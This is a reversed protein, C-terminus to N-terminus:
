DSVSGQFSQSSDSPKQQLKEYHKQLNDYHRQSGCHRDRATSENLYFMSCLNCFYGSKPVVFEQGLPNDPKFPPLKVHISVSPSQSRSRKAEPGVLEKRRKRVAKFDPKSREEEEEEDDREEVCEELSQDEPTEETLDQGPSSAAEIHPVIAAEGGGEEEEETQQLDCSLEADRDLSSVDLPAPPPVDSAAEEAEEAEDDEDDEATVSRGRTSKRAPTQRARKKAPARTKTKIAEEKEEEEGEGVEDVTVFNASEELVPDDDHKRKAPISADEEEEQKEEDDDNVAEDLTVLTEPNLFDESQDEQSLPRTEPTNLEVEEVFEDLTVLAQLEGEGVEDAGVEDLTVLEEEEEEEKTRRARGGGGRSSNSHSRREREERRREKSRREEREKSRREESRREEREKSRREEREKSRREEREKSIQREKAAVHRRRLEEEEAHDDPYDEEEDSVEDLGTIDKEPPDEENTKEFTAADSQSETTPNEEVKESTEELSDVIQYMPEEEEEEEEEDKPAISAREETQKENNKCTEDMTEDEVSDLIQYTTTTEEAAAEKEAKKMAATEKKTMKKPRGRKGKPKTTPPEDKAVEDKVEALTADEGVAMDSKKPPTSTNRRRGPTDRKASRGKTGRTSRTVTLEDSADEVSDIIEYTAEESVETEKKGRASRRRGSQETGAAVDQVPKDEVSDIIEYVVDEATADKDKESAESRSARTSPVSKTSAKDDKRAEGRGNRRGTNDTPQDEVSDIVRYTAEEEEVSEMEEKPMQDGPTELDETATQDGISDLIEFTELGADGSELEKDPLTHVEKSKMEEGMQVSAEESGTNVNNAEQDKISKDSKDDECLKEVTSSEQEGTATQDETVEMEQARAKGEDGFTDLVQFSQEKEGEPDTPKAESGGDQEGGDMQEDTEDLVQYKEGEKSKKDEEVEASSELGQERLPPRMESSTEMETESEVTKAPVDEASVKHDSTAVASQNDKVVERESHTEKSAEVTAASSRSGSSATESAKSPSKTKRRQTKQGPSSPSTKSSSASSKTPSKTPESSSKKSKKPSESHYSSPGRTSRSSSSSSIASRKGDKSYRSSSHRDASSHRERKARSSTRSSSSSGHTRHSSSPTEDDRVEDVTVFEDMDLNDEDFGDYDSAPIDSTLYDERRPAKGDSEHGSTGRSKSHSKKEESQSRRARSLRHNRVAATLVQFVDTNIPPLDASRKTETESSAPSLAAAEAKVGDEKSESLVVSDTNIDSGPKESDETMQEESSGELVQLAAQSGNSFLEPLSSHSKGKADRSRTLRRVNKRAENSFQLHQKLPDLSEISQVQDWHQTVPPIAQLEEFVKTVGSSDAMEIYMRNALTLFNVYPAASVVLELVATIVVRQCDLFQVRLLREQLFEPEPVRGDSLKMMTTYMMEESSAPLIPELVFHVNITHCGFMVPKSIHSRAFKCCMTWDAFLVFARKQLPLILVNYYLSDLDQEPFYSLFLRAMDEYKYFGDPLGTLMITPFMSGSGSAKEIDDQGRVTLYDPIVFTPTTTPFMFPHSKLTLFFGGPEEQPTNGRHPLMKPFSKKLRHIEHCPEGNQSYWAGLRDVDAKLDFEIFVKELLPLFNRVSHIGVEKLTERLKQSDTRSINNILVIKEGDRGASEGILKMLWNYFGLPRMVFPPEIANCTLDCGHLKLAKKQSAEVLKPVHKCSPLCIFALRSQPFAYILRESSGVTYPILQQVIDNLTYSCERYDPLNSILVHPVNKKLFLPEFVLDPLLTRIRSPCLYQDVLEGCTLSEDQCVESANEARSGRQKKAKTGPGKQITKTEVEVEPLHAEVPAETSSGATEQQADSAETNTESAEATSEPETVTSQEVEPSAKLSSEMPQTEEAPESESCKDASNEPVAETTTEEQSCSEVDMPEEVKVGVVEVEMPKADGADKAKDHEEQPEILIVDEDDEVVIPTDKPVAEQVTTESPKEVDPQKEPATSPKKKVVTKKVAGKAPVKGTKSIQKTSVNKAKSVLVKAVLVKAVLVKAKTAGTLGKAASKQNTPKGTADGPPKKLYKQLPKTNATTQPTSSESTAPKKQHPTRQEKESGIEIWNGKVVFDKLIRLKPADTAKEFRVVAESTSRFMVISETKGFHEVALKIDTYSLSRPVCKLRVVNGPLVEADKSSKKTRPKGATASTSSSSSANSSKLKALEALLAPALSKVVAELDSPNALSQAATAGLLKKALNEASSARKQRNRRPPSRREDNRRLPSRRERSNSPSSWREHSSRPSLRRDDRRWPSSRQDDRRPSWKRESSRSRSRYRSSNYRPSFSRSRSRRNHRSSHPSRSSSRRKERKGESGHRRPSPSHSYSRSGRRTNQRQQYSQSSTKPSPKTDKGAASSKFGIEGDWLPYQTRLLRCNELHLPTNQHSIWDKMRTCEKNCLCCTHPFIRPSAAAYDHMMAVSPLGRPVDRIAQTQTKSAPVLPPPLNMLSPIQQTAAPPASAPFVGGPHQMVGTVSYGPPWLSQGILPILHQQQVQHQRPQNQMQQQMQQQQKPMQQVPQQQKKMQEPVTSGQGQTKSQVKTGSAQNSGILVLGPRSPHVGHYQSVPPQTKSTPLRDAPLEKLTGHKPPESKLLRIDTDKKPLSFSSLLSQPSQNPPNQLRKTQDHIQPAGSSLRSGYSSSLSSVSSTQDRSSGLASSKVEASSTQLLERSRRSSDYTDMQMLSGSGGSARGIEDGVGGTYKGTHGYDIVKSLQNVASSTEEQRMRPGGSSSLHQSDLGSVTRPPQPKAQSDDTARKTKEIRIQRLIFPLNAPTIQDEPYSILHELDEKQLGFHVLINSASESTYKPRSSETPAPAPKDPRPYDFGDGLGPISQRDRERESSANFRGNDASAYNSSAPPPYFTNYDESPPRKYLSSWDMSSSGSETGSQRQGVSASSSPMPYSSRGTGQSSLFGESPPSTYRPGQDIPPHTPQNLLRVEERARSIQMDISREINEDINARGQDPRYSMNPPLLSPPLLSPSLLSPLMAGSNAPAAVAPGFGSGPLLHPAVRRPDREAPINPLGYQGQSSSQNGHAYPNYMPHSMANAIKLLNLLNIAAATPSPATTPIFPALTNSNTTLNSPRSRATFANNIQTLALQAKLQALLLLACGPLGGLLPGTLPWPQPKKSPDFGEDPQDQSLNDVRTKDFVCKIQQERGPRCQVNCKVM